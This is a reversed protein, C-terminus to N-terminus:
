FREFRFLRYQWDYNWIGLGFRYNFFGVRFAIFDLLVSLYISSIKRWCIIDLVISIPEVRLSEPSQVSEFVPDFLTLLLNQGKNFRLLLLLLFM